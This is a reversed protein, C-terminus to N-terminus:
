FVLRERCEDCGNAFHVKGRKDGVDFWAAKRMDLVSAGCLAPNRNSNKVAVERAQYHFRHSPDTASLDEYVEVRARELQNEPCRLACVAPYDPLNAM